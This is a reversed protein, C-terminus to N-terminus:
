RYKRFLKKRFELMDKDTMKKDVLYTPPKGKLRYHIYALCWVGCSHNDFQLRIPASIIIECEKALTKRIELQTKRLWHNIVLMPRNGSSNFYELTWTGNTSGDFFLCFWHKGPGTSVDTNLVVAFKNYGKKLLDVVSLTALESRTQYFDIMQFPMPYFKPYKKGWQKLSLDINWNDLLDISHGPGYPKFRSLKEREVQQLGAYQTFEPHSLIGSETDVNLLTKLKEVICESPCTLRTATQDFYFKKMIQVMEPRSCISTEQSDIQGACESVAGGLALKDM